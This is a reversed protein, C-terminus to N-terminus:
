PKGGDLVSLSGLADTLAGMARGIAGGGGQGASELGLLGGARSAAAGQEPVALASLAANLPTQPLSATVRATEIDTLPALGLAITGTLIRTPATVAAHSRGPFHPAGISHRVDRAYIIQGEGAPEAAADPVADNGALLPAGATGAILVLLIRYQALGRVPAM